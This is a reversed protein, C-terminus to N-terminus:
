VTFISTCVLSTTPETALTIVSENSVEGITFFMSIIVIVNKNFYQYLKNDNGGDPLQVVTVGIDELKKLVVPDRLDKIVDPLASPLVTYTLLVCNQKLCSLFLSNFWPFEVMNTVWTCFRELLWRENLEFAISPLGIPTLPKLDPYQEFMKLISKFTATKFLATCEQEYQEFQRKVNSDDALQSIMRKLLEYNLYGIFHHDILFTFLGDMHKIEDLKESYKHPLSHIEKLALRIIQTAESLEIKKGLSRQTEICLKLFSEQLKRAIIALETSETIKEYIFGM